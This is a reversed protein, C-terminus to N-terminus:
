PVRARNLSPGIAGATLVVNGLMVKTDSPLEMESTTM